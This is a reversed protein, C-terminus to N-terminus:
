DQPAVGTRGYPGVKGSVRELDLILGRRGLKHRPTHVLRRRRSFALCPIARRAGRSAATPWASPKCPAPRSLFWSVNPGILPQRRTQTITGYSRASAPPTLCWATCRARASRSCPCSTMSTPGDLWADLSGFCSTTPLITFIGELPDSLRIAKNPTREFSFRKNSSFVKSMMWTCSGGM